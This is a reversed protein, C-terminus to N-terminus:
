EDDTEGQESDDLVDNLITQIKLANAATTDLVFELQPTNRLNARRALQHRIKSALDKVRTFGRGAQEDDGIFSIWVKAYRLDSAVEVNTVSALRLDPDDLDRLFIESLRTRIEEGLQRTRRTQKM